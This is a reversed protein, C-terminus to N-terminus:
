IEASRVIISVVFDDLIDAILILVDLTHTGTNMSDYNIVIKYMIEIVEKIEQIYSFSNEYQL